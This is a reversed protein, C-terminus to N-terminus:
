PHGVPPPLTQRQDCLRFPYPIRWQSGLKGTKAEKLKEELSDLQKDKEKHSEQYEGLAKSLSELETRLEDSEDAPPSPPIFPGSKFGADSFSRHFWVGLQWTIKLNALAMRHDGALSHNANNGTRRVEDFLQHIERPLIGHDKLRSLLEYQNEGPHDLLGVGSAVLQALLEALQRLKLLCTNPDDAFYREALMGLRLLQEDHAKLHAFNSGLKGSKM